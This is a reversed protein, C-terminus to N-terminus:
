DGSYKQTIESYEEIIESHEKTIESYEDTIKQTNKQLRMCAVYEHTYISVEVVYM